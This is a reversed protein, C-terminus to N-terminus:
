LVHGPAAHLRRNMGASKWDANKSEYIIYLLLYLFFLFLGAARRIASTCMPLRERKARRPLFASATKFKVAEASSIEQINYLQRM